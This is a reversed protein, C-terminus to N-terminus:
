AAPAAAPAPAISIVKVTFKLTKGALPHNLNLPVKDPKIESIIARFSAGNPNTGQLVMGVEPAVGAPLQTKPIEVFAAPDVAGYGEEPSVTVEKNEGPKAGELAKELGAVIQGRGQIYHFPAKGATSDVVDKDVTLTYEIAVDMDKRVVMEQMEEAAAYSATLGSAALLAALLFRM